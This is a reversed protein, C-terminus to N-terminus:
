VWITCRGGPRLLGRMIELARQPDPLHHIVGISFVHDLPSLEPLDYVSSRFVQVNDLGHTWARANEAGDGPDVGIVRAAHRAMTRLFRGNGCGIEAITAGRLEDIRVLPALVDALLEESGFYGTNDFYNRWQESFDSITGRDDM